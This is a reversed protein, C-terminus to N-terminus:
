EDHRTKEQLVKMVLLSPLTPCFLPNPLPSEGFKDRCLKYVLQTSPSSILPPTEFTDAFKTAVTPSLSSPLPPQAEPPPPPQAEPPPPTQAEPPPLTQAEPPPPPQAELPPPPQAEPPPPPQAEPPPPPQAEPPPPPQAEPLLSPEEEPLTSPKAQQPTPLDVESHQSHEITVIKPPIAFYVAVRLDYAIQRLNMDELLECLGEWSVTYHVGSKLWYGMVKHWCREANVLCQEEWADLQNAELGFRLGFSRWKSSVKDILRFQQM